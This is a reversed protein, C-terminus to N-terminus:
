TERLEPCERCLMARLRQELEAPLPQCPLDRSMRITVQYTEVHVVCPPCARLHEEFMRRHEEPLEGSVFEFLMECLRNCDIV